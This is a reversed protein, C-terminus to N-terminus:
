PAARRMLRFRLGQNGNVILPEGCVRCGGVSAKEVPHLGEPNVVDVARLLGRAEITRLVRWNKHDNACVIWDGERPLEPEDPPMFDSPEIM